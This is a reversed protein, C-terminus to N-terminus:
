NGCSGSGCCNVSSGSGWCLIELDARLGLPWMVIKPVRSCQCLELSCDPRTCPALNTCLIPGCSSGAVPDPCHVPTSQPWMHFVPGPWCVLDYGRAVGHVSGCQMQGMSWGWACSRTKHWEDPGCLWFTLYWQYLPVTDSPFITM